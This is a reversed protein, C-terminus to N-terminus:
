IQSSRQLFVAQDRLLNPQSLLQFFRLSTKDEFHKSQNNMFGHLWPTKISMVKDKQSLESIVEKLEFHTEKHPFIISVPVQPEVDLYNRIQSPYFAILHKIRVMTSQELNDLAKWAAAAGASFTILITNEPTNILDEIVKNVYQSHGCQDLYAQYYLSENELTKIASQYPCV